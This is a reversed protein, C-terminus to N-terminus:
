DKKKTKIEYLETDYNHYYYSDSNKIIILFNNCYFLKMNYGELLDKSEKLTWKIGGMSIYYNQLTLKYGEFIFISIINDSIKFLGINKSNTDISKAISLNSKNLLLIQKGDNLCYFNKNFDIISVNEKNLNINFENLHTCQGNQLIKYTDISSSSYLFFIDNNIFKIKRENEDIKLLFSYDNNSNYNPYHMLLVSYYSNNNFNNFYYDKKKGKKEKKEIYEQIYILGLNSNFDYDECSFNYQNIIMYDKNDIIKLILIINPSLVLINENDIKKCTKIQTLQSEVIKIQSKYNEKSIFYISNYSYIAFLYDNFDIIGIAQYNFETKKKM